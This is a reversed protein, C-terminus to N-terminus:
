EFLSIQRNKQQETKDGIFCFEFFYFILAEANAIYGINKKKNEPLFDLALKRIIEVDEVKSSADKVGKVKCYNEQITITLENVSVEDEQIQNELFQKVIEKKDWTKKILFEIENQQEIPFNLKIKPILDINASSLIIEVNSVSKPKNGQVYEFIEGVIGLDDLSTDLNSYAICGWKSLYKHINEVYEFEADKLKACLDSHDIIHKGKDFSFADGVTKAFDARPFDQKGTFMLIFLENCGDLMAKSKFGDISKHVKESSDESTVQVAIKDGLFLLDVGVYNPDSETNANKLKWDFFLNLLGRYFEEADKNVDFRGAKNSFVTHRALDGLCKIIEEKYKKLNSCTQFNLTAYFIPILAYSTLTSDVPIHSLLKFRKSIGLPLNYRFKQGQLPFPFNIQSFDNVANAPYIFCTALPPVQRTTKWIPARNVVIEPFPAM